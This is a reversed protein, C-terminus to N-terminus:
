FRSDWYDRSVGDDGNVEKMKEIEEEIENMDIEEEVKEKIINAIEDESPLEGEEIKNDSIYEVVSEYISSDADTAKDIIKELISDPSENGVIDDLVRDKIIELERNFTELVKGDKFAEYVPAYSAVKRLRSM